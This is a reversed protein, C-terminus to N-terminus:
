QAPLPPTGGATIPPRPPVGPLPLPGGAAATLTQPTPEPLVGTWCSTPCMNPAVKAGVAPKLVVCRGAISEIECSQIKAGTSVGEYTRGNSSLHARLAGPVGYITEVNFVLPRPAVPGAKSGAEPAAMGSAIRAQRASELANANEVKILEEVTIVSSVLSSQARAPAPHAVAVAARAADGAAQGKGPQAAASPAALALSQQAHGAGACLLLAFSFLLSTRQM